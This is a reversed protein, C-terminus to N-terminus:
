CVDAGSDGASNKHEEHYLRKEGGLGFRRIRDRKIFLLLRQQESKNLLNTSEDARRRRALDIDIALYISRGAKSAPEPALIQYQRDAQRQRCTQIHALESSHQRMFEPMKGLARSHPQSINDAFDIKPEGS